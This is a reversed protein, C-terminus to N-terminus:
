VKKQQMATVVESIRNVVEEINKNVVSSRESLKGVESAVVAFGAGKDGARAAEISANLALIKQRSQISRLTSTEKKITDVLENTENVGDVLNTYINKTQNKTYESQIFYNMLNRLLKVSADVVESSRSNVKKLLAIYEEENMGIERAIKRSLEEPPLDRMVQGGLICGLKEGNVSMEVAFDSLGAHCTYAGDHACKDGKECRACGKPNARMAKCFDTFNYQESIYKGDAGIAVAAMGTAVAWTSIMRRFEQMDAFDQIKVVLEEKIQIANKFTAKTDITSHIM